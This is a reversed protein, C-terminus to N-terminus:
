PPAGAWRTDREARLAALQRLFDDLLQRVLVVQREEGGTELAEVLPDDLM